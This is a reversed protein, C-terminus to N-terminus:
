FTKGLSLVVTSSGADKHKNGAGGIAPFPQANAFCYFGTNAANCSGKANTGVYAAGLLWGGVDRTVGLKVDNYSGNTADTGTHWNKLRFFGAHANLGWGNGLDWTGAIDLYRSGKTAPLSFYDSVAHFYKASLWRWSGGVYVESNSVKGNFTKTADKPNTFTTGAGSNADSGPYVYYIAGLDLGWDGWTKKWGGYFDMEINGRPFGAGENVNSNWNGLYLGSEHAYDVGGQLAPQKFTQSIGRFRYDTALTLNGTVTHPSAPAAPAATQATAAAPLAALGSLLLSALLRNKM